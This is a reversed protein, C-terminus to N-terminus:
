NGEVACTSDHPSPRSAPHPTHLAAHARAAHRAEHLAADAIRSLRQFDCAPPVAAVGVSATVRREGLLDAHDCAAIERRISEAFRDLVIGEMGVTLLGFEEGGLRAVSCLPDGRSGARSAAYCRTAWKTAM